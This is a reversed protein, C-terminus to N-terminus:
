AKKRKPRARPAKPRKSAESAPMLYEIGTVLGASFFATPAWLEALWFIAEGRRMKARIHLVTLLLLLLLGLGILVSRKRRSLAM